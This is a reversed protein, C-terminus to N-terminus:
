MPYKGSLVTLSCSISVSHLPIHLSAPWQAHSHHWINAPCAHLPSTDCTSMCFCVSNQHRSCAINLLCTEKSHDIEKAIFGFTTGRLGDKEFDGLNTVQKQLYVRELLGSYQFVERHFEDWYLSVPCCLLIVSRYCQSVWGSSWTMVSQSVKLKGPSGVNDASLGNGSAGQVVLWGPGQVCQVHMSGAGCLEDELSETANEKLFSKVNFITRRSRCLGRRENKLANTRQESVDDFKWSAAWQWYGPPRWRQSFSLGLM